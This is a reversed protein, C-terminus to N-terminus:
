DLSRLSKKLLLKMTLKLWLIMLKDYCCYRTDKPPPKISQEITLRVSSVLNRVWWYIISINSGYNELNPIAKSLEFCQSSELSILSSISSISTGNRTNIISWWSHLSKLFSSHAFADKTDGVFLLFNQKATLALFQRQIPHEVCLSYTKALAHLFPSARKFGDCCQQARQLGERKVHYQWHSQLIVANEEDSPRHIPEGFMQTLRPVSEIAQTWRCAM